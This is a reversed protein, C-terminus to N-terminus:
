PTAEPLLLTWGVGWRTTVAVGLLRLKRRVVCIRQKVVNEACNPERDPNPYFLAIMDGSSIPRGAGYMLIALMDAEQPEFSARHPGLTAVQGALALAGLSVARIRPANRIGRREDRLMVLRARM